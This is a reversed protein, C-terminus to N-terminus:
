MHTSKTNHPSSSDSKPQHHKMRKCKQQVLSWVRRNAFFAVFFLVGQSSVLISFVTSFAQLRTSLFLYAFVWSLGTTTSLKVCAFMSIKHEKSSSISKRSRLKWVTITFILINFFVLVGIPLCFAFMRFRDRKMYCVTSGYGTDGFTVLNATITSLVVLASCGYAYLLSVLFVERVARALCISRLPFCLTYFLYIVVANMWWVTALWFFHIFIGIATCLYVIQTREMGFQFLAQAVFLTVILGMNSVGSSTRLQPFLCYLVFSLTLFSLSLYTCIDSVISVVTLTSDGSPRGILLGIYSRVCMRVSRDNLIVYNNSEVITDSIIIYLTLTPYSTGLDLSPPHVEQEQLHIHPCTLLDNVDLTISQEVTDSLTPPITEKFIFRTNTFPAKCLLAPKLVEYNLIPSAIIDSRNYLHLVSDRAHRTINLLEKEFEDRKVMNPLYLFMQLKWLIRLDSGECNRLDLIELTTNLRRADEPIHKRLSQSIGVAMQEVDEANLPHPPYVRVLLLMRYSFINTTRVVSSCRNNQLQKGISCELHICVKKYPDFVEHPPCPSKDTSPGSDGEVELLAMMSAVRVEDSADPRELFVITWDVDINCLYCFINWYRKHVVNKYSHCATEIREDYTKWVGSMNCEKVLPERVESCFRLHKRHKANTFFSVRCRPDYAAKKYVAKASSTNTFVVTNSCVVRTKWAIVDDANHCKACHANRYVLTMGTDKGTVPINSLWDWKQRRSCKDKEPKEATEPCANVMMYFDEYNAPRISDTECGLPMDTTQNRTQALKLDVCCDGYWQCYEDCNCSACYGNSPYAAHPFTMTCLKGCYMSDIAAMQKKFDDFYYTVNDFPSAYSKPSDRKVRVRRNQFEYSQSDLVSTSSGESLMCPPLTPKNLKEGEALCKNGVFTVLLLCLLNKGFWGRSM